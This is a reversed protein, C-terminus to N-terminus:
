GKGQVGVQGLHGSAGSGVNKRSPTGRMFSMENNEKTGKKGQLKRKNTEEPSNEKKPSRKRLAQGTGIKNESGLENELKEGIISGPAEKKGSNRPRM